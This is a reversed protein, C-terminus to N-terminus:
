ANAAVASELVPRKTPSSSTGNHPRDTPLEPRSARARFHALVYVRIASSLNHTVRGHDIKEVLASVTINERGSIERLGEWFQGELSISTKHGNLLISHKTVSSKMLRVGQEASRGLM